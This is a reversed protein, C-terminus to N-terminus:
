AIHYYIMGVVAAPVSLFALALVACGKSRGVKGGVNRFTGRNGRHGDGGWKGSGSGGRPKPIKGM